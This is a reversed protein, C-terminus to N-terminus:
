PVKGAPKGSIQFTRVVSAPLMEDLDAAVRTPNELLEQLERSVQMSHGTERQRQWRLYMGTIWLYRDIDRSKFEVGIRNRFLSFNEVFTQYPHEDSTRYLSGLHLQLTERAAEDYIPYRECDIFFHCFKAAFSHFRRDAGPMAAIREVLVVEGATWHEIGLTAVHRAMRVIAWVQTSYLSNIVVSKLMCGEEDFGPVADCLRQLTRDILRWGPLRGYVRNAAHIQSATVLTPSTSSLNAEGQQTLGSM